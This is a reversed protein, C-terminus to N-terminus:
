WNFIRYDITPRMGNKHDVELKDPILGHFAEYVLRHVVRTVSSVCCYYYPGEKKLALFIGSEVSWLRGLSSLYYATYVPHRALREGNRLDPEVWQVNGRRIDNFDGNTPQALNTYRPPPLFTMALLLFVRFRTWRGDDRKLQYAIEGDGHQRYKVVRGSDTNILLDDHRFAHSTFPPPCQTHNNM